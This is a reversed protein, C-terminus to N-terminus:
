LPKMGGQQLSGSRSQDFRAAGTATASAKAAKNAMDILAAQQANVGELLAETLNLNDVDMGARSAMSNIFAGQTAITGFATAAKARDVGKGVWEGIKEAPPADIGYQMAAGGIMAYNFAQSLESFSLAEKKADSEYMAAVWTKATERSMQALEAVASSPAVGSSAYQDLQKAVDALVMETTRDLWTDYDPSSLATRVTYQQQLDQKFKPDVMTRYLDDTSLNVGAYIYFAAKVDSGYQDLADWMQFRSELETPEMGNEMFAAFDSPDDYRYAADGYRIMVTRYQQERQIYASEDMRKMGTSDRISPFRARYETTQVMLGYIEAATKGQEAWTVISGVLSPMTGLWPFSSTINAVLIDEEATTVM